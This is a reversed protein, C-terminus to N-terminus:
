WRRTLRPVAAGDLQIGFLELITKGFSKIDEALADLDSMNRVHDLRRGGDIHSLSPHLSTAFMVHEGDCKIELEQRSHRTPLPIDADDAQTIKSKVVISKLANLSVASLFCEKRLMKGKFFGRQLFNRAFRFRGSSCFEFEHFEYDDGVSKKAFYRVYFDNPVELLQLELSPNSSSAGDPSYINKLTEDESLVTSEFLLQRGSPLLSIPEGIIKAIEDKVAFVSWSLDASFSCCSAGSIANVVQIHVASVVNTQRRKPSTPKRSRSRSRSIRGKCRKM